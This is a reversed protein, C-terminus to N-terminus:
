KNWYKFVDFQTSENLEMEIDIADQDVKEIFFININKNWRKLYVCGVSEILREITSVKGLFRLSPLPYCCMIIRVKDGVKIDEGNNYKM